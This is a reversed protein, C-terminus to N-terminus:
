SEGAVFRIAEAIEGPVEEQLFHGADTITVRAEPLMRQHRPGLRGLVPDRGGWVLAAPGGFGM